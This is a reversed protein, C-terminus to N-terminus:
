RVPANSSFIDNGIEQTIQKIEKKTLYFFERKPIVVQKKLYYLVHPKSNKRRSQYYMCRSNKPRYVNFGNDKLGQIVDRPQKGYRRELQRTGQAPICLWKANKASITAGNNHVAAYKSTTGVIAMNGKVEYSFSDRLHGTDQLPKGEGRYAKTVPSLPTLKSGHYIHDRIFETAMLGAKRVMAPKVLTNATREIESVVENSNDQTM